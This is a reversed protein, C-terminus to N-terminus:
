MTRALRSSSRVVGAAFLLGSVPRDRFLELEGLWEERWRDRHRGPLRLATRAITARSVEWASLRPKREAAFIMSLVTLGATLPMPLHLLVDWGRIALWECAAVLASILTPFRPALWDIGRTAYTALVAGLAGILLLRLTERNRGM